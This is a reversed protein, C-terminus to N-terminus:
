KHIELVLGNEDTAIPYTLGQAGKRIPALLSAAEDTNRVVKGRSGIWGTTAMRTKQTGGQVGTLDRKVKPPPMKAMKPAPAKAPKEHKVKIEKEGFDLEFQQGKLPLELQGPKKFKPSFKAKTTTEVM